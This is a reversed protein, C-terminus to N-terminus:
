ANLTLSFFWKWQTNNATIRMFGRSGLSPNYQWSRDTRWVPSPGADVRRLTFTFRSAQINTFIFSAGGEDDDNLGESCFYVPVGPLFSIVTPGYINDYVGGSTGWVGGLSAGKVLNADARFMEGRNDAAVYFSVDVPVICAQPNCAQTNIPKVLGRELCFLDAVIAGDDRVCNVPRVQTGGGCPVSCEGWAGAVFSYNVASNHRLWLQGSSGQTNLPANASILGLQSFKVKHPNNKNNVHSTLNSSLTQNKSDFFNLLNTLYTMIQSRYSDISGRMQSFKTAIETRLNSLLSQIILICSIIWYRLSVVVPHIVDRTFRQLNSFKSM